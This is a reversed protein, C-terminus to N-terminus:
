LTRKTFKNRPHRRCTLVRGKSLKKWSGIDRPACPTFSVPRDRFWELNGIEVFMTGPATTVDDEYDETLEECHKKMEPTGFGYLEDTPDMCYESDDIRFRTGDWNYGNIPRFLAWAPEWLYGKGQTFLFVRDKFKVVGMTDSFSVRSSVQGRATFRFM